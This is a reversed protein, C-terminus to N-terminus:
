DIPNSLFEDFTKGYAEIFIQDIMDANSQNSKKTIQTTNSIQFLNNLREESNKYMMFSSLLILLISIVKIFFKIRLQSEMYHFLRNNM